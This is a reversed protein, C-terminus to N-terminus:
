EEVTTVSQTVSPFQDVNIADTLKSDRLVGVLADQAQGWIHEM